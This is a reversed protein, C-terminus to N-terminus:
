KICILLEIKEKNNLHKDDYKKLISNKILLLTSYINIIKIM